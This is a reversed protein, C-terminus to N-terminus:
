GHTAGELASQLAHSAPCILAEQKEICAEIAYVCGGSLGDDSHGCLEQIAVTADIATRLAIALQELLVRPVTIADAM